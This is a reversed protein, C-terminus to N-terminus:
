SFCIKFSKQDAILLRPKRPANSSSFNRFRFRRRRRLHRALEAVDFAAAPVLLAGRQAEAAAVAGLLFLEM